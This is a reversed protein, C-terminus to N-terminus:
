IRDNTVGKSAAPHLVFRFARNAVPVGAFFGPNGTAFAAQRPAPRQTRPACGRRPRQFAPAPIREQPAAWHPTVSKGVPASGDARAPAAQQASGHRAGQKCPNDRGHVLRSLAQVRGGVSQAPGGRTGKVLTFNIRTGTALTYSAKVM